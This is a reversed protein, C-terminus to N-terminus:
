AVAAPRPAYGFEGMTPGCIASIVGIEDVSLQALLADNVGPDVVVGPLVRADFAVGCWSCIKNMVEAPDRVLDEYRVELLRSLHPRDEAFMKHANTWHTAQDGVSGWKTRKKANASVNAYPDRVIAVFSADPFLAQIYRTRILNPPSKECLRKEPDIMGRRYAAAALEADGPAFDSETLRYRGIFQPLAWQGKGEDQKLKEILDPIKQGEGLAYNQMYLTAPGNASEAKPSIYSRIASLEDHSSLLLYLLSTGSKNLGVIFIPARLMPPM